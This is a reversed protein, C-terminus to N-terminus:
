NGEFANLQDQWHDRENAAADRMRVAADVKGQWHQALEQARLALQEPLDEVAALQAEAHEVAARLFRGRKEPDDSLDPVLDGNIDVTADYASHGANAANM